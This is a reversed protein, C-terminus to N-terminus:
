LTQTVGAIPTLGVTKLGDATYQIPTKGALAERAIKRTPEVLNELVIEVFHQQMLKDIANILVTRDEPNLHEKYASILCGWKSFAYGNEDVFEEPHTKMRALLLAVGDNM